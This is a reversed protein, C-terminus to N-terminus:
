QDVWWHFQWWYCFDVRFSSSGSRTSVSILTSKEIFLLQCTCCDCVFSVSIIIHMFNHLDGYLTRNPTLISAEMMDGLVDIGNINDLPIRQGNAGEAYGQNIATRFNKEFRELDEINLVIQDLRRNVNKVTAGSIRAVTGLPPFTQISKMQELRRTKWNTVARKLFVNVFHQHCAWSVRGLALRSLRTWNQFIDKQSPLGGVALPFSAHCTIASGRLTTVVSSRFIWLISFLRMWVSPFPCKARVQQHMYYFLEGRRDKRVISVDNAEFPYVLHWHWHSCLELNTTWLELNIYLNISLYHLHFWKSVLVCTYM